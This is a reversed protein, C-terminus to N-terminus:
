GEAGSQSRLEEVQEQLQRNQERLQEVEAELAKIRQTLEENMQQPRDGARFVVTGSALNSGGTPHSTVRLRVAPDGIISYNRADRNAAWLRSIAFDDAFLSTDKADNLDSSLEAYRENFFEVASGVPHGTMLRKLTSQFVDLQENERNWFFSYGWARDVHGIVALAGRNLLRRPLNAVFAHPAAEAAALSSQQMFDDVKPTGAGYCAFNFAIRGLLNVDDAVDDASFYVDPDVPGKGPWDQCILAGQHPLQRLNGNPFVAGHSATFLLTPTESGGIMQSLRSKTATEGICTQVTWQQLTEQTQQEKQLQESLPTLLHASSLQTARDNNHCPGFFSITKPLALLETEAIVVNHAYQQYEELTEFYIRGVARQVDLQYQFSYPISEPDGVILLYYPMREPNAPGPGIRHRNLFDQKSEGLRYADVDLYERYHKQTAQQQRHTLLESLAVKLQEATYGTPDKYEYAFIVGWGAEALDKPEKGELLGMHQRSAKEWRQRLDRLHSDDFTEGRAIKAIQQFSLPPLLPEGTVANIGNLYFRDDPM